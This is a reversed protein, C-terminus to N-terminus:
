IGAGAYRWCCFGAFKTAPTNYNNCLLFSSEDTTPPQSIITITIISSNSISSTYIEIGLHQKQTENDNHKSNNNSSNEKVQPLFSKVYIKHM